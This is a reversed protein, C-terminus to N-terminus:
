QVEAARIRYSDMGDGAKMWALVAPTRLSLPAGGAQVAELFATVEPDVDYDFREAIRVLELALGQVREIVMPDTPFTQFLRTFAEYTESYAELAAKNRPTQALSGRVKNPLDGAFLISRYNRWAANLTKDLDSSVATAESILSKWATGKKLTTSTRDGRFKGRVSEARQRLDALSEPTPTPVGLSQFLSHRKVMAAVARAPQDLDSRLGSLDSAEATKSSLSKLRDLKEHLAAVRAPLSATM